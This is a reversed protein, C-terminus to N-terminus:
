RSPDIIEMVLARAVAETRTGAELKVRARAIYERVSRESIGLKDAIGDIQGGEALASLIQRERTSLAPTTDAPRQSWRLALLATFCLGAAQLATMHARAFAEFEPGPEDGWFTLMSLRKSRPDVLPMSLAQHQGMDELMTRSIPAFVTDGSREIVKRHDIFLPTRFISLFMLTPRLHLLEKDEARRVDGAHSRLQADLEADWVLGFARAGRHDAFPNAARRPLDLHLAARHLGHRALAAHFAQWAAEPTDAGNVM